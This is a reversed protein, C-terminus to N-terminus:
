HKARTLTLLKKWTDRGDKTELLTGGSGAVWGHRQDLFYVARLWAMTGSRQRSWNGAYVTLLSCHATLLFFLFTLLPRPACPMAKHHIRNELRDSLRLRQAPREPLAAVRANANHDM